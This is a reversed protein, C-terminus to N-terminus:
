QGSFRKPKAQNYIYTREAVYWHLDQITPGQASIIEAMKKVEDQTPFDVIKSVTVKVEKPLANNLTSGSQYANKLRLEAEAFLWVFDNWSKPQLSYEYAMLRVKEEDLKISLIGSSNTTSKTEVKPTSAKPAPDAAKPAPSTVKPAPSSAKPAPSSVKSTSASTKKNTSKKQSMKKGELM